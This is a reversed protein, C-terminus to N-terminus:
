THIPKFGLKLPTFHNFGCNTNRCFHAPGLTKDKEQTFGDSNDSNVHEVPPLSVDLNGLTPSGWDDDM